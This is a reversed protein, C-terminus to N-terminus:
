FAPVVEDHLRLSLHGSHILIMCFARPPTVTSVLHSSPCSGLTRGPQGCTSLEGDRLYRPMLNLPVLIGEWAQTGKREQSRAWGICMWCGVGDAGM